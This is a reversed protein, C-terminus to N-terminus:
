LRIMKKAIDRSAVDKGEGSHFNSMNHGCDTIGEGKIIDCGLFIHPLYTGVKCIYM